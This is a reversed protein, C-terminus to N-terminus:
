MFRERLEQPVEIGSRQLLELLLSLSINCEKSCHERHDDAMRLANALLLEDRTTTQARQSQFAYIEDTM